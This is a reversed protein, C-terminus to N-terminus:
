RIRKVIKKRIHEPTPEIKLRESILNKVFSQIEVDTLNEESNENLSKFLIKRGEVLREKVVALPCDTFAVIEEDTFNEIDSLIIVTKLEVPLSSFVESIESPNKIENNNQLKGHLDEYANKIVRFLWAKYDTGEDLHNYFHFARQYTEIILNDADKENGTM